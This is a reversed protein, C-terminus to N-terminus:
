GFLSDTANFTQVMFISSCSQGSGGSPLDGAFYVDNVNGAPAYFTSTNPILQSNNALNEAVLPQTVTAYNTPPYMGGQPSPLPSFYVNAPTFPLNINVQGLLINVPFIFLLFPLYPKSYKM